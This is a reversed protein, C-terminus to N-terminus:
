RIELTASESFGITDPAAPSQIVAPEALYSGRGIPRAYYVIQKREDSRSACFSVRQGEVVYPAQVDSEEIGHERPRALPRLGAPLIDTVQYCGDVPQEEFAYDLQVRVPKDASLTLTQDSALTYTRTLRPGSQDARRQTPDLPTLYRMSLGLKGQSVEVELGRMQDPTLSLILSDGKELAVEERKGELAYALRVRQHALRPLAVQLFTIQELSHVIDHPRERVTYEFLAPAFDDSLEAGLIAALATAEITDDADTGLNLRVTEGRRQGFEQLMQRYLRAATEHDGLEAAALAAYLRQRPELGDATVLAQVEPLVREGLAALGYVAIAARERTTQSSEAVSRFYQALRPRGFTDPALAAVRASLALDDDAHPLIALGGEETQYARPTFESPVPLDEAFYEVLLRAAENRAMMQDLRDGYTWLMSELAAYYRGRNHDSLAVSIRGSESVAAPLMEAGALSQGAALQRTQLDAQMLRSRLVRVKRTVADRLQGSSATITVEHEGEVLPGFAIDSSEFASGQVVVPQPALTPSSLEFTVGAGERLASGFARAQLTPRDVTLYSENMAVDVFFPLSVPIATTTRGVRLDQTVALATIRWSTLNDPLDFKLRGQGAQDTTIREFLAVDKFLNRGNGGGGGGDPAGTLARHSAYSSLIGSGVSQYLAALIDLDYFFEQGQLRFIAEDVATLLVEAAVPEGQRDTTRVRLEVSEAPRYSPRDPTVQLELGRSAPDFRLTHVVWVSEFARGSFRVGVVTISPVHQEGFVFEYRPGAQLSYETIGNRAQYFLYRNDAGEPLDESGRRMNLSVHEGLEYVGDSDSHLEAWEGGAQLPAGGYLSTTIAYSRRQPDTIALSVEYSQGSAAPFTIEFRGDARSVASFQGITERHDRYHYQPVVAKAIFDYTQGVQVKTWWVRKVHARVDVGGLPQGRYDGPHQARGSNLRELDVPYVTGSIVGSAGVMHGEAVLDLSASFVQVEAQASIDGEEALRPTVYTYAWRYLGYYDEATPSTGLTITAQGRADTELSGSADGEYKLELGPVPSGEFFSATVGVEVSEGAFIASHAPHLDIKYAPKIFDQVEVYTSAITREGVRARLNYSGPSAGQFTLRGIFTGGRTTTVVQSGLAVPRYDYDRFEYSVLDVTVQQGAAPGDRLRAIGWFRLTDTPRYLKRETYIYRWYAGPDDWVWEIPETRDIYSGIAALPLVCSRGDPAELLLYGAATRTPGRWDTADALLEPPTDFLAVGDSGTRAIPPGGIVSIAAGEISARTSLDNAWVLTRRESAAVYGAVDTVQLLTHARQERLSAEVLYFGVPLAEPFRAFLWGSVLAELPLELTAALELGQTDIEVRTRSAYAWEPVSAFEELGAAFAVADPFRYVRFPMSESPPPQDPHIAILSLVPAEGPPVEYLNRGFHGVRRDQGASRTSAGTEFQFSFEESLRLDSGRVEAGPELVVSYLTEAALPRAPVFVLTRKRMEFRGPVPPQISLRERVGSVDSHSFTLEIGTDLPVGTAQHAPLTQVVSLPASAQFAWRQLPPGSAPGSLSFRYLEGPTLAARPRIVFSREQAGVYSLLGAAKAAKVEFDLQPEVRLRTALDDASM